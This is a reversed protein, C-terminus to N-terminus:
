EKKCIVLEGRKILGYISHCKFGRGKSDTYWGNEKTHDPDHPLAREFNGTYKDGDAWIMTGHGYPIGSAMTKGKYIDGNEYVITGELLLGNNFKGSISSGGDFSQKGNGHFSGFNRHSFEGEYVFDKATMIGITIFGRIFTGEYTYGRKADICKGRRPETDEHMPEIFDGIYVKESYIIQKDTM